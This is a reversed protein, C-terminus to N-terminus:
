HAFTILTQINTLFEDSKFLRPKESFRGHQIDINLLATHEWNM